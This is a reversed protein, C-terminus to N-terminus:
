ASAIVINGIDGQPSFGVFRNDPPTSGLLATRLAKRAGQESKDSASSNVGFPSSVTNTAYKLYPRGTMRSIQPAGAGTRETVKVTAFKIKKARASVNGAGTPVTALVYGTTATPATATLVLTILGADNEEKTNPAPTAAASALAKTEYWFKDPAGFPQIYAIRSARNVRKNNGVATAYAAQKAARDLKLWADFKDKAAKLEEARMIDGFRAM